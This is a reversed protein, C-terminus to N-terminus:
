SLSVLSIKEKFYSNSYEPNRARVITEKAGMKKALVASIMNVEDQETMAIFIDCHGVDAQELIKFNAGNGVIGMIDYRKTIRNLVAENQEILIVDHKEAVLSRCLASGVKGGGVVIIKM